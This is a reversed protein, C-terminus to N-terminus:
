VGAAADNTPANTLRLRALPPEPEMASLDLLRRRGSQPLM